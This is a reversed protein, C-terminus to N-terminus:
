AYHMEDFLRKITETFVFIARMAGETYEKWIQDEIHLEIGAFIANGRIECPTEQMAYHDSAFSFTKRGYRVDPDLFERTGLIPNPAPIVGPDVEDM